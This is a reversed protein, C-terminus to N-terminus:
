KFWNEPVKLVAGPKLDMLQLFQKTQAPSNAGLLCAALGADFAAAMWSGAARTGGGVDFSDYGLVDPKILLERGPGAGVSSYYQARGDRGAAGVTLVSRADAPMGVGGFQQQTRPFKAADAPPWTSEGAYDQFVVRGKTRSVADITDIAIRPRVDIPPRSPDLSVEGPRNSAPVRGEVRIAFRGGAPADFEVTAEYTSSNLTHLLRIPTGVSRAIIELDDTPLKAGSPDRQRVVVLGLNAVPALYPDDSAQSLAPDHPERWQMAVRVRIKEPLDLAIKADHAQWGLFNLESSWRGKIPASDPGAFEMAGNGDEDHFLGVWTQGRTDGAAQVWLTGTDVRSSAIRSRTVTGRFGIFPKEDLYKSLESSGDLPYGDNWTLTNVIVRTGQLQDLEARLRLYKDVRVLLAKEARQNEELAAQARKIREQSELFKKRQEPVKADGEDFVQEDIAKKREASVEVRRRDIFERERVLEDHRDDLARPTIGRENLMRALLLLQHPAAADLRVLLLQAGPAAQHVALAALSGAGLTGDTSAMPDPDLSQNRPATMDILATGKPLRTGVLKDWGGFDGGAVVIKMGQGRYGREHLRIARTEVLASVAPGAPWRLPEGSRALRVLSVQALRALESVHVAKARVTIINGIRGEVLISQAATRLPFEWERDGEAPAKVLVAEVRLTKSEDMENEVLARLEPALKAFHAKAEPLAPAAPTERAPAVDGPEPLLEIVQIPVQNKLPADLTPVPDHPVLWGSPLERLDKLLQNLQGAPVTGVLWTFGRHDYGIAERFGIAELRPLCQRSLQLQKARSLGSVLELRVKIRQDAKPIQYGKPKLLITRVGSVRLLLRAKASPIAGTLRDGGPDELEDPGLPDRVFGASKMGALMEDFRDYWAPLPARLQFRVQVDYDKPPDPYIVEATAPGALALSIAVVLPANRCRRTATM